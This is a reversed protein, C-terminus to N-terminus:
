LNHLTSSFVLLFDEATFGPRPLDIVDRVRTRLNNCLYRRPANPLGISQYPQGPSRQGLSLILPSPADNSRSSLRPLSLLPSNLTDYGKGTGEGRVLTLFSLFLQIHGLM